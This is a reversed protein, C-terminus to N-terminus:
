APGDSSRDSQLHFRGSAVRETLAEIEEALARDQLLSPSIERVQAMTQALTPPTEPVARLEIAQTAIMLEMAVLRELKECMPALAKASIASHTVVDEVGDAAGSPYVPSPAALQVIESFLAEASKMTPAFGASAPDGSGLGVPLDTFRPHIQKSMRAVQAAALHTAAQLVAGLTVSLHPTLYAGTSLVAGDDLVAPNDPAGNLETALTAEATDLAAYLVGHIQPINRFSLPDQVRRAHGAELLKSGELREQIGQAAREQGPQPHLALVSADFPSLNARFGELSIAAATQASELTRRLRHLGLAALAATVSSHSALALGERPGPQYPTLGANALAEAAPRRGGRTEMEGEGILPLGMTASWMLDAAGISGTEGVVPTLDANLCDALARALAPDAGAAGTLLTNARIAMAARIAARPLPPGVAHARGRLTNVSMAAQEEVSLRDVVRPGLGTTIGYMPRGEDIATQLMTRTEAMRALGAPDLAVGEGEGIRALAEPTLGAGTLTIIGGM